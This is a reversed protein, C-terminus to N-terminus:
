LTCHVDAVKTGQLMKEQGRGDLNVMSESNWQLRIENSNDYSLFEYKECAEGEVAKDTEKTEDMIWM